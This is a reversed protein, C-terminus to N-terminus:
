PQEERRNRCLRWQVKPQGFNIILGFELGSARLYNLCQPVFPSLDKSDVAKLEVLLKGEVVIDAKFEGITKGDYIVNMSVQRAYDIGIAELEISLASEYVRELFGVGLKNSVQYAAGGVRYVLRDLSPDGTSGSQQNTHAAPM